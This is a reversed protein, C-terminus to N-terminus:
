SVIIFGVGLGLTTIPEMNLFWILLSAAALGIGLGFLGLGKENMNIVNFKSWVM